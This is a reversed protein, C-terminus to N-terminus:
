FVLRLGVDARYEQRVKAAFSRKVQAYGKVNNSFNMTAGAAVEGWTDRLSEASHNRATGAQYDAKYKATFDRLADVKVFASVKDNQYGGAVGVRGILSNMDKVKAKVGTDTTYTVSNIHGYTLQVQPDVFWNEGLAFKKGYELGFQYAFTHYKGQSRYVHDDSIATFDNHMRSLKFLVDLYGANEFQKTAYLSLGALYNDSKGGNSLKGDGDIYSFAGGVTWGYQGGINRDVGLQVGYYNNKFYDSSRDYRNKGGIVRVWLGELEPTMRVEGMRQSLTELEERWIFYNSMGVSELAAMTSTKGSETHIGSNGGSSGNGSGTNGGETSTDGGSGQDDSSNASSAIEPLAVESFITGSGNSYNVGEDDTALLAIGDSLSATQPLSVGRLAAAAAKVETELKAIVVESDAGTAEANDLYYSAVFTKRPTVLGEPTTVTVYGAAKRTAIGKTPDTLALNQASEHFSDVDVKDGTVLLGGQSLNGVGGGVLLKNVTQNMLTKINRNGSDFFSDRESAPFTSTLDLNLNLHSLSGDSQLGVNKIAIMNPNVVVSKNSEDWSSGISFTANGKFSGDIYVFNDSGALNIKYAGSEDAGSGAVFSFEPDKQYKAGESDTLESPKVSELDLADPNFSRNTVLINSKDGLNLTGNGNESRQFSLTVDDVLLALMNAQTRVQPGFVGINGSRIDFSGVLSTTTKVNGKPNYRALGPTSAYENTNTGQFFPNILVAYNNLDASNNKGVEIWTAKGADAGSEIVQGGGLNVIGARFLAQTEGYKYALFSSRATGEPIAIPGDVSISDIVKVRQGDDVLYKTSSDAVYALAAGQGSIGAIMPSSWAAKSSDIVIRGVSEIEQHGSAGGDELVIGGETAFISSINGVTQSGNRTSQTTNSFNGYVGVNMPVEQTGITGIDATIKQTANGKTGAVTASIGIGKGAESTTIKGITTKTKAPSPMEGNVSSWTYGPDAGVYQVAGTIQTFAGSTNGSAPRATLSDTVLHIEDVGDPLVIVQAAGGGNVSTFSARFAIPGSTIVGVSNKFEIKQGVHSGSTTEANAVFNGGNITINAKAPLDITVVDSNGATKNQSIFTDKTFTSTPADWGATSENVTVSTAAVSSSVSLALTVAVAIPKLNKYLAKKM